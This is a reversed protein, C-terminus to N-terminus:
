EKDKALSGGVKLKLHKFVAILAQQVLERMKDKGYSLWGLSTKHVTVTPDREDKKM